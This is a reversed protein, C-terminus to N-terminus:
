KTWWFSIRESDACVSRDLGCDSIVDYFQRTEEVTWVVVKHKRRRTLISHHFAVTFVPRTTWESRRRWWQRKYRFSRNPSEVTIGFIWFTRSIISGLRDSRKCFCSWPRQSQIQEEGFQDYRNSRWSSVFEGRGRSPDYVWQGWLTPSGVVLLYLCNPVRKRQEAKTPIGDNSFRIFDGLSKSHEKSTQQPINKYM